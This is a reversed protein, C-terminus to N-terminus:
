RHRSEFTPGKLDCDSTSVMLGSRGAMVQYSLIFIPIAHLRISNKYFIVFLFAMKASHCERFTCQITNYILLQKRGFRAACHAFVKNCHFHVICGM